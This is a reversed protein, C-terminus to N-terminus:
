NFDNANYVIPNSLDEPTFDAEIIINNIDKWGNYSFELKKWNYTVEWVIFGGISKGAPIHTFITPYGKPENVLFNHEIKEWRNQKYAYGPFM